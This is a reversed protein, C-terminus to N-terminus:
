VTLSIQAFPDIDILPEDNPLHLFLTARPGFDGFDFFCYSVVVTQTSVRWPSRRMEFWGKQGAPPCQLSVHLLDNAGSAVRKRNPAVCCCTVFSDHEDYSMQVGGSEVDFVKDLGLFM